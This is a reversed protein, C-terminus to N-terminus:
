TGPGEMIRNIFRVAIEEAQAGHGEALIIGKSNLLVAWPTRRTLAFALTDSRGGEVSWVETTWGHREAYNRASELPESSLAVIRLRDSMSAIQSRWLSAVQECHVCQSNFVLM